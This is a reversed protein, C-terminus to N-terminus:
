VFYKRYADQRMGRTETDVEGHPKIDGNLDVVRSLKQIADMEKLLDLNKVIELDRDSLMLEESQHDAYPQLERINDIKLYGFIGATVILICATAVAPIMHSPKFDLYRRWWKDKQRNKLNWKINTVLSKVQQSSLEPPTVTERIKGLLSLLRQYEGRCSDCVALHNQIEKGSNSDMEGYAYMVLNEKQNHCAEV